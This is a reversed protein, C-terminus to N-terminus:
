PLSCCNYCHWKIYTFVKPILHFQHNGWLGYLKGRTVIRVQRGQPTCLARELGVHGSLPALRLSGVRGKGAVKGKGSHARSELPVRCSMVEKLGESRSGRSRAQLAGQVEVNSRLYELYKVSMKFLRVAVWLSVHVGYPTFGCRYVRMRTLWM